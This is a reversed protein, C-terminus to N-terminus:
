RLGRGARLALVSAVCLCAAAGLSPWLLSGSVDSAIGAVTPGLMQGCGFGATMLAVPRRPDGASLRRAALMGLATLGMFSGGVCAAALLTGIAAPWLVSALVGIAEVVCVIAFTRFVDLRRALWLWLAVSPVAALGFVAWIVPELPRLTASARVLAVIFTATIVYGFASLTNAALLLRFSPGLAVREPPMTAARVPPADRAILRAVWLTCSLSLAGAGLWIVPWGHDSAHLSGVLWASAAIGVGVGAFHVSALEGRGVTQLREVVLAIAMVIAVAGAMGSVFRALLMPALSTALAMAATCSASLTLAALLWHRRSGPLRTHAAFLAGLLYGLYNASAILGAQSLSLGLAEVMLPLIPTYIFRDIGNAAAMSLLGGIALAWPHQPVAGPSASPAAARVPTASSTSM